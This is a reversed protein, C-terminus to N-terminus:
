CARGHVLLGEATTADGVYNAPRRSGAAVDEGLYVIEADVIDKFSRPLYIQSFSSLSSM